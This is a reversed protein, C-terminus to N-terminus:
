TGRAPKDQRPPGLLTGRLGPLAALAPLTGGPRLVAASAPTTAPRPLLHPMLASTLTAEPGRSDALVGAGAGPLALGDRRRCVGPPTVSPLSALRSACFNAAAIRSTRAPTRVGPWAASARPM